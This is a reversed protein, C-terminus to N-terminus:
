NEGRNTLIIDLDCDSACCLRRVFFPMTWTHTLFLIFHERIKRWTLMSIRAVKAERNRCACVEDFEEGCGAEETGADRSARSLCPM